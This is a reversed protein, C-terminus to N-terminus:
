PKTPPPPPTSPADAAPVAVPAVVKFDTMKVILRLQDEGSKTKLYADSRYYTPFWYKGDVNEYYIEYMTFPSAPAGSDADDEDKQSTWQGYIKVVALDRDDIYVLGSFLKYNPLLRKPKVLFIYTHLEDLPQTGKYIFDYYKMQSSVLPFLPVQAASRADVAESKLDLFHQSSTNTTREYRRGNDALYVETDERIEGGKEGSPPIEQVRVSRKFGYLQHARMYEDENVAFSEIIKQPPIPPADAHAETPIRHVAHPPTPTLPDANQAAAPLAFALAAALSIWACALRSFGCSRANRSRDNM